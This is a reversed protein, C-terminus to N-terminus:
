LDCHTLVHSVLHGIAWIRENDNCVARAGREACHSVSGNDIDHPVPVPDADPECLSAGALFALAPVTFTPDAQMLTQITSIADDNTLPRTM